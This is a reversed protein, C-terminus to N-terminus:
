VLPVLYHCVNFDHIYFIDMAGVLRTGVLIQPGLCNDVIQKLYASNLKIIIDRSLNSKDLVNVVQGADGIESEGTLKVEDDIKMVCRDSIMATINVARTFATLNVSVLNSFDEDILVELPKPFMTDKQTTISINAKDNGFFVVDGLSLDVQGDPFFSTVYSPIIARVDSSINDPKYVAVKIRDSAVIAKDLIWFVDYGWNDTTAYRLNKLRILDCGLWEPNKDRRSFDKITGGIQNLNIKSKGYKIVINDLDIDLTIATDGLKSLYPIIALPLLCTGDDLVKADIIQQGYIDNSWSYLKVIDTAEILLSKGSADNKRSVKSLFHIANLLENAKCEIIM